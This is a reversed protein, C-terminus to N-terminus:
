EDAEEKAAELEFAFWNVSLHYKHWQYGPPAEVAWRNAVYFSRRLKPRVKAAKKATM